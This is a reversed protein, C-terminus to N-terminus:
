RTRAIRGENRIRPKARKSTLRRRSPLKENSRRKAQNHQHAGPPQARLRKSSVARKMQMRHCQLSQRLLQRRSMHQISGKQENSPGLKCRQM